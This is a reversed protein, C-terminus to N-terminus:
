GAPRLGSPCRRRHGMFSHWRRRSTPEERQRLEWWIRALLKDEGGLKGIRKGQEEKRKKDIALRTRADYEGM